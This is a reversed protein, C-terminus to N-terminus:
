RRKLVAEATNKKSQIKGAFLGALIDESSTNRPLRMMKDEKHTSSTYKM